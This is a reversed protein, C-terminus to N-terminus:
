ITQQLEQQFREIAARIKKLKKAEERSVQGDDELVAFDCAQSFATTLAIMNQCQAKLFPNSM